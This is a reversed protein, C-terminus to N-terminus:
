LIKVDKFIVANKETKIIFTKIFFRHLGSIMVAIALSLHFFDIRESNFLRISTRKERLNKSIFFLDFTIVFIHSLNMYFIHNSFSLDKLNLITININREVGM